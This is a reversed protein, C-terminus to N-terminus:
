GTGIKRIQKGNTRSNEAASGIGKVVGAPIDKYILIGNRHGDAPDPPLVTRKEDPVNAYQFRETVSVQSIKNEPKKKELCLAM